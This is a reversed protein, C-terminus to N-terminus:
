GRWREEASNPVDNAGQEGTKTRSTDPYYSTQQREEKKMDTSAERCPRCLGGAYETHTMFRPTGVVTHMAWFM